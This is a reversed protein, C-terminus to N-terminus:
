CLKSSWSYIEVGKDGLNHQPLLYGTGRHQVLYQGLSHEHTLIIRVNGSKQSASQTSIIEVFTPSIAIYYNM